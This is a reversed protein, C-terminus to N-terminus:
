IVPNTVTGESLFIFNDIVQLRNCSLKANIDIGEFNYNTKQAVTVFNLLAYFFNYCEETCKIINM